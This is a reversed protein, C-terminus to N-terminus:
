TESETIFTVAFSSKRSNVDYHTTYVSSDMSRDSAPVKAYSPCFLSLFNRKQINIQRRIESNRLGYLVPNLAISSFNIANGLYTVYEPHCIKCLSNLFTLLILTLWSVLFLFVLVLVTKAAKINAGLKIMSPRVKHNSGILSRRKMDCAHKSAVRFLVLNMTVIICVPLLFNLGLQMYLYDYSYLFHCQEMWIVVVEEKSFLPIIAFLLSYAWAIGIAILTNRKRIYRIRHFPFVISVFREMTLLLLCFVSSPLSLLFAMSSFACMVKGFPFIGRLLLEIDFPVVLISTVLDGIALNMVLINTVTLLKRRSCITGILIVNFLVAISILVSYYISLGLKFQPTMKEPMSWDVPYSEMGGFYSSNSSNNAM